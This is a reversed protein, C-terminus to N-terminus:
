EYVQAFGLGEACYRYKFWECSCCIKKFKEQNLKIKIRQLIEEYIYEEQERLELAELTKLDLALIKEEVSCLGNGLNSPCPQCISDTEAVLRFKTKPNSKLMDVIQDMNHVFDDSYGRGQYGQICLLHHARLKM